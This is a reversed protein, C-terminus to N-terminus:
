YCKQFNQKAYKLVKNGSRVQCLEQLLLCLQHAMAAAEMTLWLVSTLSLNKGYSCLVSAGHHHLGPQRTPKEPTETTKARFVTDLVVM